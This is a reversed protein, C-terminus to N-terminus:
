KRIGEVTMYLQIEEATPGLSKPIGFDKLKFTTTGEFGERYGGWPDNGGAIHKADLVVEKTVGRLTLDGIIKAKGDGEPVVKKSVFKASPFEDVYLFDESRIHKDREAHNTDVSSPDINVEVKAAAPNAEDYSFEGDFKNFRGLVWSYGLHSMKFQIFSHANKTDMVFDAAHVSAAGTLMVGLVAGVISKKM